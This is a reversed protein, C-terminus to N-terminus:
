AEPRAGAALHAALVDAMRRGEAGSVTGGVGVRRGIRWWLGPEWGRPLPSKLTLVFGNSPKFAFAGREVAAIGAVPAVLRGDTDRLAEETLVLGRATATFLRVTLYLSALGFLILLVRFGLSGAALSFGSLVVTVGLTAMVAVAFVRRPASPTISALVRPPQAETM